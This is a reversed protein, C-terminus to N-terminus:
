STTAGAARRRPRYGLQDLWQGTAGIVVIPRRGLDRARAVGALFTATRLELEFQAVWADV